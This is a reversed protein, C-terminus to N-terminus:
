AGGGAGDATAGASAVAGATVDPSVGDVGAETGFGAALVGSAGAAADAGVGDAVSDGATAAAIASSDFREL